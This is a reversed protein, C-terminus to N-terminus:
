RGTEDLWKKITGALEAYRAFGKLHGEYCEMMIRGDSRQYVWPEEGTLAKVVAAFREADAVRGGPAKASAYAHGRAANNGYRGFTITYERVVRDVITHEGEVRGVEATIKLRLLKKGSRDEELEAGGDIVKVMHEKGGVEVRGEFGELRLSGREKGEKVIEKAKEYVADGEERARQLIYEVFEVALRQREGSGHVSLWAAYALGERLISVYGDRDGESMKMTFHIGEVLGIENLRRAVQQISDPNTTEYRVVLAGGGSLGVHYKPWGEKLVRWSELKKLWREAKGADVWGNEVAKRVIEALAKRLEERGAALKDTTAVVRWIDMSGKKKVKASVGAIRLLRAALEVRGRDSSHFELEIADGRLYINYKVTVDGESIILDAAVRGGETRRLGEWRIDLGEAALKMAEALRHNKLRDDGELLPSGYRFYLGALKVADGGSVIVQFASGVRRVEAEIGYAALVAGWLLAIGREGSTLGVVEMAASVHGDGGIAGSIVAGLYRLMTENVGLREAQLLLLAPAVVERAINDDDLENKLGELEKLAGALDFGSGVKVGELRRKAM